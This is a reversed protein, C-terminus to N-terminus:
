RDLRKAYILDVLEYGQRELVRGIDHAAKSHHYVVQVGEAKLEADCFRLLRSGVLTKRFEPLLFVVDQFAQLSSRYHGNRKVFFAAYGVLMGPEPAVLTGGALRVTFCRLVGARDLGEYYDTDPELPIDQYHAIERWHAHLLPAVEPWLGTIPERQFTVDSPPVVALTAIKADIALVAM